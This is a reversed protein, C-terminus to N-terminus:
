LPIELELSGAIRQAEVCLDGQVTSDLARSVALDFAGKGSGFAVHCTGEPRMSYDVYLVGDRRGVTTTTMREARPNARIDSISNNTAYATVFYWDQRYICFKWENGLQTLEGTDIVTPDVGAAVLAESPITCPDWLEAVPTGAVGGTCAATSAVVTAVLAARIWKM